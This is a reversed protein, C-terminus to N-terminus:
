RALSILTDDDGVEVESPGEEEEEEEIMGPLSQGFKIELRRHLPDLPFFFNNVLLGCSSFSVSSSPSTFLLALEM